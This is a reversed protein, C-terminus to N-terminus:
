EGDLAPLAIVTPAVVDDFVNAVNELEPFQTSMSAGPNLMVDSQIPPAVAVFVILPV